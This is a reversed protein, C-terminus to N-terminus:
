RPSIAGGDVVISQGSVRGALPSCLWVAVEAIEDPKVLGDGPVTSEIMKRIEPGAEEMFGQLMPTDTSGPLVNNCRIRGPHEAIVCKTLGLVGHKAATYHPLGPAAVIGAGSSNNVIAGQVGNRKEQSSMQAVEHKLCLFVGTLNVAIMRNWSELDLQHFAFMDDNIGANNFACDLRGFADVTAAVMAAVSAEDTVDTEVFAATGGAAEILAVTENGGATDRDAVMVSAGERAFIMAASRGIGSGGGTVVASNGDHMSM